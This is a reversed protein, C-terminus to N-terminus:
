NDTPPYDRKSMRLLAADLSAIIARQDDIIRSSDKLVDYYGDLFPKNIRHAVFMGIWFAGMAVFAIQIASM